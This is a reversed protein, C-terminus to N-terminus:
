EKLLGALGGLGAGIATGAPGFLSGLAAGGAAGLPTVLAKKAIREAKHSGSYAKKGEEILNKKIDDKMKDIEKSVLAEINKPRYGGNEEIIRDRINGAEINVNNMREINEILKIKGEDSNLLSPVTKLIINVEGETIRAGFFQKAFKSFGTATKEFEQAEKSYFMPKLNIGVYGGIGHELTNLISVTMPNPLTGSAIANRMVQLETNSDLAATKKNSIDKNWEDTSKDIKEQQKEYKDSRKEFKERVKDAQSPSLKNSSIYNELRDQEQDALAGPPLKTSVKVPTESIKEPAKAAYQEEPTKQLQQQITQPEKGSIIDEVARNISEESRLATQQKILQNLIRPDQRALSELQSQNYNPWITQLGPVLQKAQLDQIKQNALQQLGGSIGTGLGAGLTQWPDNRQLIQVM